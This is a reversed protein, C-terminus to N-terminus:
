AMCFASFTILKHTLVKVVEYCLSKDLSTSPRARHFRPLGSNLLLTGIGASALNRPSSLLSIYFLFRELLM